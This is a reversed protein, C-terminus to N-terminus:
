SARASQIILDEVRCTEVIILDYLRHLFDPDIGHKEAYRAARDQVISIRHPQMMPVNHERKVRAIQVCCEIRERLRELLAEDLRDLRARLAELDEVSHADALGDSTEDM